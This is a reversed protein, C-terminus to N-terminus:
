PTSPVPLRRWVSLVPRRSSASTSSTIPRDRWISDLKGTFGIVVLGKTRLLPLM